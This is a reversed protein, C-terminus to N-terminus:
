PRTEWYKLISSNQLAAQPQALIYEDNQCTMCIGPKISGYLLKIQILYAQLITRKRHHISQLNGCNAFM